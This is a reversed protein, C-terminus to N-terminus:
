VECLLRIIKGILVGFTRSDGQNVQHLEFNLFAYMFFLTLSVVLWSLFLRLLTNLVGKKIFGKSFLIIFIIATLTSTSLVFINEIEIIFDFLFLIFRLITHIILFHATFFIAVILGKFYDHKRQDAQTGFLVLSFFVPFILAWTYVVTEASDLLANDLEDKTAFQISFFLLSLGILLYSVPNLFPKTRGSLYEDIAIAPRITFMKLNHFLGLEMEIASRIQNIMFRWSIEEINKQGCSSCYKGVNANQCNKCVWETTISSKEIEEM